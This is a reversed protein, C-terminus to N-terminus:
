PLTALTEYQVNAGIGNNDWTIYCGLPFMIGGAPFYPPSTVMNAVSFGQGQWIPTGSSNSGNWLSVYSGTISTGTQVQVSYIRTSDSSKGVVSGNVTFVSTGGPSPM